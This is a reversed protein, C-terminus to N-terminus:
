EGGDAEDDLSDFIEQIEDLMDDLDEDTLEEADAQFVRLDCVIGEM